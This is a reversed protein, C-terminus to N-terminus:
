VFEKNEQKARLEREAQPLRLYTPRVEAASTWLFPDAKAALGALSAARQFCLTEPALHGQIPWNQLFEATLAAGDGAFIVPVAYQVLENGLTTLDVARDPTIRSGTSTFLANYVQGRRADMAACIMDGPSRGPFSVLPEAIVALTSVALCPRSLAMAMGKVAAIGIRLGTFSGPGASVAFGDIDAPLAGAASLMDRIMPTLTQSHTLKVHVFSEALLRGASSDWLAASAPGASSDVALIIM